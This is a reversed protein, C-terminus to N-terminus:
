PQFTKHILKVYVSQGQDHVLLRFVKIKLIVEYLLLVKYLCPFTSCRVRLYLCLRQLVSHM